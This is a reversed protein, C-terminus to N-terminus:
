SFVGDNANTAAINDPASSRIANLLTTLASDVNTVAQADCRGVQTALGLQWRELSALLDPLEPYLESPLPVPQPQPMAGIEMQDIQQRVLVTHAVQSVTEDADSALDNLTRIATVPITDLQAFGDAVARRVVTNRDSALTILEPVAEAGILAVLVRVAQPRVHSSPDNHCMRRVRAVSGQDSWQQVVMLALQRVSVKADRLLPRIIPMAARYGTQLMLRILSERLPSSPDILLPALSPAAEDARLECLARVAKTRFGVDHLAICNIIPVAERVQLTSLAELLAVVLKTPVSDMGREHIAQLTALLRPGVSQEGFRALCRIAAAQIHPNPSDLFPKIHPALEIASLQGLAEITASVLLPGANDLFPTIQDKAEDAKLRGLARIATASVM